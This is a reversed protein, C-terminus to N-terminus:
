KSVKITKNRSKIIYVGHPLQQLLTRTDTAEQVTKVQRGQLDFVIGNQLVGDPEQILPHIGSSQKEFKISRINSTNFLRSKPSSLFSMQLNEGSFWWKGVDNISITDPASGDNYCIRIVNGASLNCSACCLLLPFLLKAKNM